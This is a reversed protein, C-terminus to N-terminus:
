SVMHSLASYLEASKLEWTHHQLFSHQAERGLRQRTEASDLLSLIRTQMEDMRGPTYLAASVENRLLEAVQGLAPAVIATGAAMYEFLKMPSFYFLEMEPYPALAVDFLQVYRHVVTRDVNGVFILRSQEKDDLRKKLENAQAGGSGVFLFISRDHHSFVARILGALDGIGHWHHMSGLFGIVHHSDAIGLQRRLATRLEPATEPVPDAGNTIVRFREGALTHTRVFYERAVTSQTFVLDANKLMFKECALVVWKWLHPGGNYHLWEYSNAGDAEVVLPIGFKRAVFWPSIRMADLRAIVLDPPDARLLRVERIYDLINHVMERPTFLLVRAVAKALNRRALGPTGPEKVGERRWYFVISCGHKELGSLLKLAKITSGISYSWLGNMYNLYAIKM